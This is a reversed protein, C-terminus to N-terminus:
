KYDPCAARLADKMSQADKLIMNAYDTYEGQDDHVSLGPHMSIPTKSDKVAIVVVRKAAQKDRSWLPIIEISGFRRNLATIIKDLKDMRHIMTLSGKSFLCRHAALVWDEITAEPELHGSAIAKGKDPSILHSGHDLYPPNCIVHNYRKSPDEVDFTKIDGHIFHVRDHMKNLTANQQALEVYDTQIDVGAVSLSPVRKLLCLAAGGVGSGLDLVRDTDSAPCSAALVVSDFSTRFGTKPQLLRISKNLFSVEVTEEAQELPLSQGKSRSELNHHLNSAEVMM